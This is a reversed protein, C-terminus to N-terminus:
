AFFTFYFNTISTNGTRSQFQGNNKDATAELNDQHMQIPRKILFTSFQQYRSETAATICTFRAQLSKKSLIANSCHM